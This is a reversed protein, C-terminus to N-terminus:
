VTPASVVLPRVDVCIDHTRYFLSVFNCTLPSLLRPTIFGSSFLGFQHWVYGFVSDRGKGVWGGVWGGVKALEELLKSMAGDPYLRIRMEICLAGTDTEKAPFITRTGAGTGGGGRVGGGPTAPATDTM